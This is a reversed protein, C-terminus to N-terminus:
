YETLNRGNLEQRQFLDTIQAWKEYAADGRRDPLHLNEKIWAALFDTYKISGYYNLHSADLLDDAFRIQMEEIYQNGQIMPIGYQQAIKQIYDDARQKEEVQNAFPSNVLIMPIGKEQCLKIFERLYYETRETIAQINGCFPSEDLKRQGNEEWKALEKESIKAFDPKYGLYRIEKTNNFDESTLSFFRTHYYPFSFFAGLEDLFEGYQNVAQIAEWKTVSPKMSILTEWSYAGFDEEKRYMTGTDLIVLKPSQTKLAEELLYYSIWVPQGPSALLYGAIGYEDYWRCTNMGYYVHSSGICLVDVQDKELGYFDTLQICGESTRNLTIYNLTMGVAILMTCFIVAKLLNKM